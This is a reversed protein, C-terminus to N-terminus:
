PHPQFSPPIMPHQSIYNFMFPRTQKPASLLNLPYSSISPPPPRPYNIHYRPLPYSPLSQSMHYDDVPVGYKNRKAFPNEQTMMESVPYIIEQKVHQSLSTNSISSESLTNSTDYWTSTSQSPPSSFERQQQSSLHNPKKDEDEWPERSAIEDRRYREIFQKKQGFSINKDPALPTDDKEELSSYGDACEEPPGDLYGFKQKLDMKTKQVYEYADKQDKSTVTASRRVRQQHRMIDRRNNTLGCVECKCSERPCSGKHNRKSVFIGHNRCKDCVQKKSHQENVPNKDKLHRWLRYEPRM